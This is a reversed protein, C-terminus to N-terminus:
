SPVINVGSTRTIDMQREEYARYTTIMIMQDEISNRSSSGVIFADNQTERKSDASYMPIDEMSSM